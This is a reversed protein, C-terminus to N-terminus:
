VRRKRNGWTPTQQHCNPCLFQLNEIRNDNNVGNIHDLHLVVPKGLWEGPNSCESIACRYAIGSELAARRVSKSNTAPSNEVLIEDNPRSIKKAQAKILPNTAATQGKSWLLGTFHSTDIEFHRVLKQIHRYNGGSPKLGLKEFVQAFSLSSQIHPTLNEKTYKRARM